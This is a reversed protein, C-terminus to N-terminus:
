RVTTDATQGLEILSIVRGKTEVITISAHAPKFCIVRDDGISAGLVVNIAVFHSYVATDTQLRTLHDIVGDRWRRLNADVNSWNRTMVGRLWDGRHALDVNGPTPIEGVAEAVIPQLSLMQALPLSTEFARRLPSSVIQKPTLLRLRDAAQRAQSHGLETLGPDADGDGWTGSPEGHRILFLRPM